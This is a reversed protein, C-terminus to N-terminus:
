IISICNTRANQKIQKWSYADNQQRKMPSQKTGRWWKVGDDNMLRESQGCNWFKVCHQRHTTQNNAQISYLYTQKMPTQKIGRWWRVRNM